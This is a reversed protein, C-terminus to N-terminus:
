CNRNNTKINYENNLEPFTESYETGEKEERLIQQHCRDKEQQDQQFELQPLFELVLMKMDGQVANKM